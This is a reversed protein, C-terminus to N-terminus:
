YEVSVLCLGKASITAGGLDRKGEALMKEIDAKQIKGEGAKILTGVMIRVMNYLFGNGCVTFTTEDGKNELDFSYITRVTTKASSGTACFAKFDKEGVLASACDRMNGIDLDKDIRFAYREKLPLACDSRYLTYRYTKKKAHKRANFGDEVQESSIIKVDGALVTNLAKAFNKPPISASTEFSAVQCVAHVGADTRGSGTVTIEEGTLTKLASQIEGQVTRGSKQIQWGSFDTGDYTVILKITM